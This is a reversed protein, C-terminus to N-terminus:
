EVENETAAEAEIMEKYEKLDNLEEKLKAIEVIGAFAIRAVVKKSSHKLSLKIEKVSLTEDM